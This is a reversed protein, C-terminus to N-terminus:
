AIITYVCVLVAYVAGCVAGVCVVTTLKDVSHRGSRMMRTFRRGLTRRIVRPRLNVRIILLSQRWCWRVGYITDGALVVLLLRPVVVCCCCLLVVVSHTRSM